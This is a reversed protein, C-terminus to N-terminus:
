NLNLNSLALFWNQGIFWDFNGIFRDIKNIFRDIPAIFRFFCSCANFRPFSILNVHQLPQCHSRGGHAHEDDCGAKSAAVIASQRDLGAWQNM